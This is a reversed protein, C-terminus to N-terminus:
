KECDPWENAQVIHISYIINEGIFKFHWMASKSDLHIQTYIM